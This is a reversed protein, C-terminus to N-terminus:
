QLFKNVPNIINKPVDTRMIKSQKIGMEDFWENWIRELLKFHSSKAPDVELVM